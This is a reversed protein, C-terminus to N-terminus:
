EYISERSDDFDPNRSRHSAVWARFDERWQDYPVQSGNKEGGLMERVAGAVYTSVDQGALAAQRALESEVDPPLQLQITM